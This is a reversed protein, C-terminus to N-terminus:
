DHDVVAVGSWSNSYGTFPEVVYTVSKHEVRVSMMNDSAKAHAADLKEELETDRTENSM